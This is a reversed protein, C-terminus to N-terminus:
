ISKENIFNGQFIDKIKDNYKINKEWLYKARNYNQTAILTLQDISKSKEKEEIEANTELGGAVFIMCAKLKREKVDIEGIKHLIYSTPRQVLDAKMYAYFYLKAADYNSEIFTALPIKIEGKLAESILFLNYKVEPM